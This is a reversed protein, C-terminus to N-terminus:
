GPMRKEVYLYVLILILLAASLGSMFFLYGKFVMWALGALILNLVFLGALIKQVSWGAQALRQYAHSKHAQYWVEGQAWRRILTVTADFWFAAYLIVWITWPLEFGRDGVVPVLALVLGLGYSGADGMFVKAKPWNWLFFGMLGLILLGLSYALAYAGVLFLFGAGFGLVCLAELTAFGDLGDMFNFLNVSWLCALGMLIAAWWPWIEGLELGWLAFAVLLFQGLLRWPISLRRSDEWFGLATMGIIAPLGTKLFADPLGHLVFRGQAVYLAIIWLGMFILGAGRPTPEHHSSRANPVDVWGRRRAIAQFSGIFIISLLFFLTAYAGLSPLSRGM